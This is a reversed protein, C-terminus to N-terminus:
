AILAWAAFSGHSESTFYQVAEGPFILAAHLILIPRWVTAVGQRAFWCFVLFQLVVSVSLPWITRLMWWFHHEEIVGRGWLRGILLPGGALAVIVALALLGIHSKYTM